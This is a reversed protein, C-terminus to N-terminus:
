TRISGVLYCSYSLHRKIAVTSWSVAYKAALARQGTNNSWVDKSFYVFFHLKGDSALLFALNMDRRCVWPSPTLLGFCCHWNDLLKLLQAVNWCLTWYLFVSIPEDFPAVSCTFILLVQTHNTLLSSGPLIHQLGKRNPSFISASTWVMMLAMSSLTATTVM